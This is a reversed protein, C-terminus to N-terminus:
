SPSGPLSVLPSNFRRIMPNACRPLVSLCNVATRVLLPRRLAASVVRCPWMRRAVTKRYTGCWEAALVDHWDDAARLALPAVAWAAALAWAIGEGTFPEVYGAADGLVFLREGAVTDTRRTLGVTGQWDSDYAAPLRPFGADKWIGRVAAGMGGQQKVSKADLAAAVNLSGDEVRVAGVYGSRAVAMYITGNEYGPGDVAVRLGAGIRSRGTPTMRDRHSDSQTHHGLGGAALVVRASVVCRGNAHKLTVDRRDGAPKSREFSAEPFFDGGACIAAQVLAADFQMRSVAVGAPLPLSVQRGGSALRFRSIPVAGLSAPLGGLGAQELLSLAQGNLCGGCAKWRPFHKRDVLLVSAGNRALVYAALSGAPGAGVVLADWVRQAAAPPSLTAEVTM